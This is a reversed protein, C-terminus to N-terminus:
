GPVYCLKYKRKCTRAQAKYMTGANVWGTNTGPVDSGSCSSGTKKACRKKLNIIYPKCGSSGVSAICTTEYTQDYECYMKYDAGSIETPKCTTAPWAGHGPTCYDDDFICLGSKLNDFPMSWCSTVQAIAIAPIIMVSSLVIAIVIKKPVSRIM